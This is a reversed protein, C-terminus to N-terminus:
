GQVCCLVVEGALVRPAGWLLDLVGPLFEIRVLSADPNQMSTGNSFWFTIPIASISLYHLSMNLRNTITVAIIAYSRGATQNTFVCEGTRTLNFDSDQLFFRDSISTATQPSYPLRMYYLQYASVASIIVAVCLMTAVFYQQTKTRKM